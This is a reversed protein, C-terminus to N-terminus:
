NPEGLVEDFGPRIFDRAQPFEKEILQRLQDLELLLPVIGDSREPLCKQLLRWASISRDVGVLAVKASGDSDKPFSDDPTWEEPDLEESRSSLARMTKVAIQYQYWQIVETADRFDDLRELDLQEPEVDSSTITEAMDSLWQTVSDAYDKGAQCVRHNEVDVLRKEGKEIQESDGQSFDIGAEEALDALMDQADEFIAGLKNWFEKNSIDRSGPSDHIDENETAFVLCRSTFECRECWRDCYNYIGSILDPGSALETLNRRRM